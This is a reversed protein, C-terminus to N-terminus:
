KEGDGWVHVNHGINERSGETTPRAGGQVKQLFSVIVLNHAECVQTLHDAFLEDNKGEQVDLKKLKTYFDSDVVIQSCPHIQVEPRIKKVGWSFRIQKTIDFFFNSSLIKAEGGEEQRRFLTRPPVPYCYDHMYGIFATAAEEDKEGAESHKGRAETETNAGTAQHVKMYDAETMVGVKKYVAAEAVDM